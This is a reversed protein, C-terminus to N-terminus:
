IEKPVIELGGEGLKRRYDIILELVAKADEKVIIKKGTVLSVVTDPTEEMFEILHPNIWFGEGNLRTVKIMQKEGKLLYDSM